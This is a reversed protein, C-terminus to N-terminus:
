EQLFRRILANVREPQEHVVWHSGEPIREVKLDPVFDGLGDLLSPLLAVDREGWIVRTPVKVRFDDPNLVLGQPGPNEATPPHLPTARYYNVGGVLGRSWCEHYKRRVEGAFWPTPSQGMGSLLRELIAFDHKALVEESHPSRLWNMYASAEQQAPDEALAKMFLYPHPSNVIILRELLQPLAIALNWAIAGGWDHAVMACRPYGLHAILLRLDDVIHKPKYATPEAPMDSLNFGRLDPAVAYYDGGFEQLAAEWEYWFEPFGHVFLLLPAGPKGASAYHLRTGNPLVAYQDTTITATM